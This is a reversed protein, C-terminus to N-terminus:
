ELSTTTLSEFFEKYNEKKESKRLAMAARPHENMMGAIAYPIIYGWEIKERLPIFEKSILDLIVCLM